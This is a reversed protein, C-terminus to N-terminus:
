KMQTRRHGPVAIDIIVYEKKKKRVLIIDPRRGELFKDVQINFDWLVNVYKNKVVKDATWVMVQRLATWAGEYYM